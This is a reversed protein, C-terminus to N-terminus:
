YGPTRVFTSIGLASVCSDRRDISDPVYSTGSRSRYSNGVGVYANCGDPLSGHRMTVLHECGDYGGDVNDNRVGVGVCQGDTVAILSDDNAKGLDARGIAGHGERLDSPAVKDSMATLCRVNAVFWHGGVELAARDRM